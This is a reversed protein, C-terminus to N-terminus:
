NIKKGWISVGNQNIGTYVLTAKSNEWDWSPIIKTKYILYDGKPPNEQQYFYLVLTNDYSFKWHDKSNGGEIKGNPLLKISKSQIQENFNKDLVLNEWQGVVVKKSIKQEKEGDYREPSVLPWGDQSWLMKRVQLYPWNTDEEGRAHHVIFYNEDDKLVSNHGPAIWGASDGFKYGGLIKNGVDMPLSTTDSMELGNYDVYPGDIKDSRGVRM